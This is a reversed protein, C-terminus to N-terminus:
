LAPSTVLCILWLTNFLSLSIFNVESSLGNRLSIFNALLVAASTTGALRRWGDDIGRILVFM